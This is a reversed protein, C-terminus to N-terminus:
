QSSLYNRKGSKSYERETAKINKEEKKQLHLKCVQSLLVKYKNKHKSDHGRCWECIKKIKSNSAPM